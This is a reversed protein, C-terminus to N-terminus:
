SGTRAKNYVNRTEEALLGVKGRRGRRSQWRDNRSINKCKIGTVKRTCSRKALMRRSQGKWKTGWSSFVFLSNGRQIWVWKLKLALKIVYCCDSATERTSGLSTKHPCLSALYRMLQILSTQSRKKSWTFDYTTAPEFKGRLTYSFSGLCPEDSASSGFLLSWLLGCICFYRKWKSMIEEQQKGLKVELLKLM